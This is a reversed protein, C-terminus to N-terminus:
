WKFNEGCFPIFLLKTRGIEICDYAKLEEPNIVEEGNLYVLSKSEGQYIRFVGKRPEFSVIAHTDRSVTDDGAICVDMKESRGIMNKASHLRYDKGKNSGDICVLWGTVPDMGTEKYVIAVTKNDKEKQKPDELPRTVPFSNNSKEHIPRTKQVDNAPNMDKTQPYTINSDVICAKGQKDNGSCYPCTAARSADYFHGQPCRKMDM